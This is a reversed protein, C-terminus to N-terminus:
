KWKNGRKVENIIELIDYAGVNSTLKDSKDFDSNELVYNEIENFAQKYKKLQQEKRKLQNFVVWFQSALHENCIHSDREANNEYTKAGTCINGDYLFCGNCENYIVGDIIIEKNIGTLSVHQM